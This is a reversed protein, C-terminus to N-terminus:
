SRISMWLESRPGVRIRWCGSEPFVFGAGWQHGPIGVWTPGVHGRRWVPEIIAGDPGVAHFPARVSTSALVIKMEKGVLGDFAAVDDRAWTTGKPLSPLAWLQEGGVATGFIERFGGDARTPSPPACGSRGLPGFGAPAPTTRAAVVRVWLCPRAGVVSACGPYNAVRVQWRGPTPFTFVGGWSHKGSSRVRVRSLRGAPSVVEVRFPYSAPGGSVLRCCSGDDRLVPLYTRLALKTPELAHPASPTITLRVELAAAAPTALVLVAALSAGVVAVRRM